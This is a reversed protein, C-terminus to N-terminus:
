LSNAEEIPPPNTRAIFLLLLALGVPAFAYKNPFPPFSLAAVVGVGLGIILPKPIQSLHLDSRRYIFFLSVWGYLGGALWWIVLLKWLVPNQAQFPFLQGVGTGTVEQMATLAWLAFFSLSPICALVLLQSILRLTSKM